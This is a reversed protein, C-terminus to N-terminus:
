KLLPLLVARPIQLLLLEQESELLKVDLALLLPEQVKLRLLFADRLDQLLLVLLSESLSTPPFFQLPLKVQGFGREALAIELIADELLLKLLLDRLKFPAFQLAGLAAFFQFLQPLAM